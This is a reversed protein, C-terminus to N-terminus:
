PTWSTRPRCVTSSNTRKSAACSIHKTEGKLKCSTQGFVNSGAYKPHTLIKYGTYYSWRGPPAIGSMRQYRCCSDLKSARWATLIPGTATATKTASEIEALHM